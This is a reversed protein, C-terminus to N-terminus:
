IWHTVTYRRAWGWYFLQSRGVSLLFSCTGYSEAQGFVPINSDIESQEFKVFHGTQFDVYRCNRLYLFHWIQVYAFKM